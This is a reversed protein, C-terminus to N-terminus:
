NIQCVYSSRSLALAFYLAVNLLCILRRNSWYMVSSLPSSSLVRLLIVSRVSSNLAKTTLTSSVSAVFFNSINTVFTLCGILCACAILMICFRNFLATV